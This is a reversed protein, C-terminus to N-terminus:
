NCYSCYKQKDRVMHGFIEHIVISEELPEGCESCVDPNYSDNWRGESRENFEEEDYFDYNSM